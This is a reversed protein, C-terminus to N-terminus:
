KKVGGKPLFCKGNTLYELSITFFEEWYERDFNTKMHCSRCMPVFLPKVDNCCMMKEYNVHHVDLKYCLESQGIGCVYCCGNFFDRVREKLDDDFKICYPEFSIGGQWNPHNEGTRGFMGNKEGAILYGKGHMSNNEGSLHPSSDRMLQKSEETHHKGKMPSPRGYMPYKEGTRGYMPNNKGSMDAHNDGMLQKTAETHYKGYMGNKDGTILYGKGYFPADKGYRHVGYMPHNKGTPYKGFRPNDKGTKGFNPNKEGSNAESIKKRYGESVLLADPFQKM